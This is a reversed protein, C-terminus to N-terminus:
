MLPKNNAKRRNKFDIRAGAKCQAKKKAKKLDKLTLTFWPARARSIRNINVFYKMIVYCAAISSLGFENRLCRSLFLLATETTKTKGM